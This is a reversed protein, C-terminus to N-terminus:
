TQATGLVSEQSMFPQTGLAPETGLKTGPVQTNEQRLAGNRIQLIFHCSIQLARRQGSMRQEEKSGPGAQNLQLRAQQGPLGTRM